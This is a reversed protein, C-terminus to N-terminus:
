LAVTNIANSVTAFLLTYGDPPAKLVTETAVNTGAGPRNEIVFPQGTSGVAMSGHRAGRHRSGRRPFGVIIHVPRSPYTQAKAIRLVAPMM